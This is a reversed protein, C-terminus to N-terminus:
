RRMLPLFLRLPNVTLTTTAVASLRQEDDDLYDDAQRAAAWEAEGARWHGVEREPTIAKWPARSLINVM